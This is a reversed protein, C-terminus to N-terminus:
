SPNKKHNMVAKWLEQTVPYQGIYFSDLEVEHAPKEDEEGEDDGMWFRGGEVWILPFSTGDPLYQIYPSEMMRM